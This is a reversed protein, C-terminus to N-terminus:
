LHLIPPNPRYNIATNSSCAKCYTYNCDVYQNYICNGNGCKSAIDSSMYQFMLAPFTKFLASMTTYLEFTQKQAPNAKFENAYKTMAAAVDTMMSVRKKIDSYGGNANALADLEEKYFFSIILTMNPVVISQVNNYNDLNNCLMYAQQMAAIRDCIPAVNFLAPTQIDYLANGYKNSQVSYKYLSNVFLSPFNPPIMTTQCESAITIAIGTNGSYYMRLPIQVSVFYDVIINVKNTGDNTSYTMNITTMDDVFKTISTVNVQSNGMNFIIMKDLFSKFNTSFKVGFTSIKNILLKINDIGSIGIEGIASIVDLLTKALMTSNGNFNDFIKCITPYDAYYLGANVCSAAFRAQDDYNEIGRKKLDDQFKMLEASYTNTGFFSIFTNNDAVTSEMIEAGEISNGSSYLSYFFTGMSNMFQAFPDSDNSLFGEPINAASTRGAMFECYSQGKAKQTIIFNVTINSTTLSTLFDNFDVGCNPAFYKDATEPPDIKFIFDNFITNPTVPNELKHGSEDSYAVTNYYTTFNPLIKEMHLQVGVINQLKVYYNIYTEYKVKLSALTSKLKNFGDSPSPGSLQKTMDFGSSMAFQIMDNLKQTDGTYKYNFTAEDTLVNSVINMVENAGVNNYKWVGFFIDYDFWFVNIYKLLLMAFFIPMTKISKLQYKDVLEVVKQLQDMNNIKLWYKFVEVFLRLYNPPPNPINDDVNFIYKIAKYFGFIKDESNLGFESASKVYDDVKTNTNALSSIWKQYEEVTVNFSTQKLTKIINDDVGKVGNGLTTIFVGVPQQGQSYMANSSPSSTLGEQITTFPSKNTNNNRNASTIVSEYTTLTQSSLENIKASYESQKFRYMPTPPPMSYVVQTWGAGNEESYSGLKCNAKNEFVSVANSGNPHNKIAVNKNLAMDSTDGALCYGGYQIAFTNITPYRKKQENAYNLCIQYATPGDAREKPNYPNQITPSRLLITGDRMRVTRATRVNNTKDVVDYWDSACVGNGYPPFTPNPDSVNVKEYPVGQNILIEVFKKANSNGPDSQNLNFGLSQNQTNLYDYDWPADLPITLGEQVNSQEFHNGRFLHIIVAILIILILITISVLNNINM